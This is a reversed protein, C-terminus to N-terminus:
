RLYGRQFSGTQPPKPVVFRNIRQLFRWFISGIVASYLATLVLIRYAYEQHEGTKLVGLWYAIIGATVGTLFILAAQQFFRQPVVHECLQNVLSGILCYSITHPGLPGLQNGSIDMALGIVFSIIIAEHTRCHVAFFALLISLVSPRIHWQGIAIVNLLSGAELLAGICVLLALLVWRM